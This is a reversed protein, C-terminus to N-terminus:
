ETTKNQLGNAGLMEAVKLLLVPSVLDASVYGDLEDDIEVSLSGDDYLLFAAVATNRIGGATVLLRKAVHEPLNETQIRLMKELDQNAM